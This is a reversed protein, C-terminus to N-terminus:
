RARLSAIDVARGTADSQYAAEIIASLTTGLEVNEPATTGAEIHSVWQEFAKPWPGAPLPLEQWSSAATTRLLITGRPSLDDTEEASGEPLQSRAVWEGIGDTSFLLSGETGHAEISFPTFATVSSTEAIAIAGDAYRYTLVANDDLERDTVHGLTASVTQPTGLLMATLYVPHCLDILIGGQATVPDWFHEPLIGGPKDPAPLAFPHGDRVRVQTVQGIVGSALLRRIEHAYAEDSRWMSVMFVIGAHEAALVVEQTEALTNAIVKETFIHKGARAAAILVEHHRNTPATVVVADIDDRALLTDLDNHFDVGYREAEQAGRAPDEDWVAAIVTGPHEEAARAYDKGHLHWFSLIGIRIM